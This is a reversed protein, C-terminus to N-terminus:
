LDGLRKLTVATEGITQPISDVGIPLSSASGEVGMVYPAQNTERPDALNVYLASWRLASIREVVIITRLRPNV